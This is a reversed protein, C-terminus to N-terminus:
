PPGFCGWFDQCPPTTGPPTPASPVSTGGEYPVSSSPMVRVSVVAVASRNNQNSLKYVFSDNGSYNANPTYTFTGNANVIATGNAPPTNLSWTWTNAVESRIDNDALSGSVATNEMTLFTDPVAVPNADLPNLGWKVTNESGHALVNLQITFSMTPYGAPSCYDSIILHDNAPITIPTAPPCPDSSPILCATCVHQSVWLDGRSRQLRIYSVTLGTDLRFARVVVWSERAYCAKTAEETYTAFTVLNGPDVTFYALEAPDWCKEYIRELGLPQTTNNWFWGNWKVEGGSAPHCFLLAAGALACLFRRM